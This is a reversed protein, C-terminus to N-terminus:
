SWVKVSLRGSALDLAGGSRNDLVVLVQKPANVSGSLYTGAPLPQTFSVIVKDGLEAGPVQVLVSTFANNLVNPPDWVADVVLSAEAQLLQMLSALRGNLTIIAQRFTNWAKVVKPEALDIQDPIPLKKWVWPTGTQM